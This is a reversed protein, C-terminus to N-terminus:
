QVIEFTGTTSHWDTNGPARWVVPGDDNFTHEIPTGAMPGDTFTWRVTKGRLSNMNREDYIFESSSSRARM